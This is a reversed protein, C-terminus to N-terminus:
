IENLSNYILMLGYVYGHSFNHIDIYMGTIKQQIAVHYHLIGNYVMELNYRKADTGHRKEMHLKYYYFRMDELRCNVTNRDM